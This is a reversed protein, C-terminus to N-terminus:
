KNLASTVGRVLNANKVINQQSALFGNSGDINSLHAATPFIPKGVVGYNAQWLQSTNWYDPNEDHTPM